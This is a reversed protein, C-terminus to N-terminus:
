RNSSCHQACRGSNLLRASDYGVESCGSGFLFAPNRWSVTSNAFVLASASATHRHQRFTRSRCSSRNDARRTRLVMETVADNELRSVPYTNMIPDYIAGKGTADIQVVGFGARVFDTWYPTPSWTAKRHECQLIRGYKNLLRVGLTEMQAPLARPPKESIPLTAPM